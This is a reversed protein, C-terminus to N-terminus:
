VAEKASTGVIGMKSSPLLLFVVTVQAEEPCAQLAAARETPNTFPVPLFSGALGTRGTVRHCSCNIQFAFVPNRFSYSATTRSFFFFTQLWFVANQSKKTVLESFLSFNTLQIMRLHKTQLNRSVCYHLSLNQFTPTLNFFLSVVPSAGEEEGASLMRVQRILLSVSVYCLSNPFSLFMGKKKRSCESNKLMLRKLHSSSFIRSKKKKTKKRIFFAVM